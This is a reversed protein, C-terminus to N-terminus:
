WWWWDLRPSGEFGFIIRDRKPVVEGLVEIALWFDGSPWAHLHQPLTNPLGLARLTPGM